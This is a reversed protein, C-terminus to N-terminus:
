EVSNVPSIPTTRVELELKNMWHSFLAKKELDCEADSLAVTLRYEAKRLRVLEPFATEIIEDVTTAQSMHHSFTAHNFSIGLLIKADRKLLWLNELCV